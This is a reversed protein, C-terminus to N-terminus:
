AADRLSQWYCGYSCYKRTNERPYFEKECTKCRRPVLYKNWPMLGKKFETGPSVRQGPKIHTRGTNTQIHKGKNWHVFGPQKCTKKVHCSACLRQWDNRDRTYRSSINDWHFRKATTTGCHECKSPKGFWRSVWSHLAIYGVSDGKWNHNKDGVFHPIPKGRQSAHLADLNKPRTGKKPGPKM